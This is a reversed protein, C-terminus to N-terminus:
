KVLKCADLNVLKAAPDSELFSGFCTYGKGTLKREASSVEISLDDDTSHVPVLTRVIETDGSPSKALTYVMLSRQKSPM